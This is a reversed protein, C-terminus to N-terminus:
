SHQMRQITAISMRLFDVEDPDTEEELAERMMNIMTEPTIARCIIEAMWLAEINDTDNALNLCECTGTASGHPHDKYLSM